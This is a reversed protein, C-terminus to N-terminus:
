RGKWKNYQQWGGLISAGAGIYGSRAANKGAQRQMAAQRNGSLLATFADQESTQAIEREALGASGAGLKVGSGAIAARAEGEQFRAARRIKEAKSAADDQAYAAQTDYYAKQQRGQLISGVAQFGTSMLLMTETGM